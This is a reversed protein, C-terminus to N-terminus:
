TWAGLETEVVAVTVITAIGALEFAIANRLGHPQQDIVVRVCRYTTVAAIAMPLVLLYALLTRVRAAM